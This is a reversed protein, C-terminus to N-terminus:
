GLWNPKAGTHGSLGCRLGDSSLLGVAPRWVITSALSRGSQDASNSSAGAIEACLFGEIVMTPLHEKDDLM